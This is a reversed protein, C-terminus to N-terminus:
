SELLKIKTKECDGKCIGYKRELFEDLEDETDGVEGQYDTLCLDLYVISSDEIPDSYFKFEVDPINPLSHTEFKIEFNFDDMEEFRETLKTYDRKLLDLSPIVVNEMNNTDWDEITDKNFVKELPYCLDTHKVSYKLNNIFDDDRWDNDTIKIPPDTMIKFLKEVSTCGIYRETTITVRLIKSKDKKDTYFGHSEETIITFDKVISGTFKDIFVPRIALSNESNRFFNIFSEKNLYLTREHHIAM